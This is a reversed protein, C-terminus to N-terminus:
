FLRISLYDLFINQHYKGLPCVKGAKESYRDGKKIDEVAFLGLDWGELLNLQQVEM